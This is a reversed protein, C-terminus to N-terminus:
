DVLRVDIAIGNKIEIKKRGYILYESCDSDVCRISYRYDPAGYRELILEITYGIIDMSIQKLQENQAIHACSLLMLMSLILITKKVM